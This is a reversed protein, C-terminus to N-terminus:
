NGEFIVSDGIGSTCHTKGDETVFIAETDKTQEIRKMGEDLGLAFCTTLATQLIDRFIPSAM